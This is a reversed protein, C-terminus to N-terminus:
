SASARTTDLRWGSRNGPFVSEPASEVIFVFAHGSDSKVVEEVTFVLNDTGRSIRLKDGPTMGQLIWSALFECDSHSSIKKPTSFFVEAKAWISDRRIWEDIVLRRDSFGRKFLNAVGLVLERYGLAKLRLAAEWLLLDNPKYKQYEILSSNQSYLGHTGPEPWRTNEPNKHADRTSTIAIVPGDKQLRAVLLGGSRILGGINDKAGDSSQNHKACYGEVYVKTAAELHEPLAQQVVVGHKQAYRIQNRKKTDLANWLASDSLTLDMSVVERTYNRIFNFQRCIQENTPDRFLYIKRCETQTELLARLADPTLQGSPLNETGNIM